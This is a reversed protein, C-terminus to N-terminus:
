PATGTRRLLDVAAMGLTKVTEELLSLRHNINSFEANARVANEDALVTFKELGDRLEWLKEDVSMENWSKPM